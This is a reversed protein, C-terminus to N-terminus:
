SRRKVSRTKLTLSKRLLKQLASFPPANAILKIKSANGTRNSQRKIGKLHPIPTRNVVSSTTKTDSKAPLTTEIPKTRPVKSEQITARAIERM